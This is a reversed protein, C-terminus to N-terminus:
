PSKEAPLSELRQIAEVAASRVQEDKDHTIEQLAAIAERAGLQGLSRAAYERLGPYDDKLAASLVQVTEPLQPGIARAGILGLTKASLKRVDREEDQRLRQLLTPVADKADPGIRALARAAYMRVFEDKDRLADRLRTVGNAEKAVAGAQWLARVAAQRVTVERDALAVTLYQITAQDQPVAADRPSLIFSTAACKRVFGDGDGLTELLAPIARGCDADDQSADKCVDGLVLAAQRRTNADDDKLASLWYSLPRGEFLREGRIWGLLPYRSAPVAFAMGIVLVLMLVSGFILRRLM